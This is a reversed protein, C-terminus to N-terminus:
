LYNNDPQSLLMLRAVRRAVEGPFGAASEEILGAATKRRGLSTEWIAEDNTM